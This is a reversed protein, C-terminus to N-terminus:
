KRLGTQIECSPFAARLTAIGSESIRTEQIDLIKLHKLSCLVPVVEDTAETGSIKLVTLEPLLQLSRLGEDTLMPLGSPTQGVRLETLQPWTKVIYELDSDDVATFAVSLTVVPSQSICELTKRTINQGATGFQTLTQIGGFPKLDGDHPKAFYFNFVGLTRIGGLRELISTPLPGNTSVLVIRFRTEPLESPDHLERDYSADLMLGAGRQMLDVALERHYKDKEFESMGITTPSTTNSGGTDPPHLSSAESQEPSYATKPITPPAEPRHWVVYFLVLCLACGTLQLWSIQKLRSLLKWAAPQPRAITAAGSAYRELDSQLEEASAYREAPKKQLAKLCIAELAPPVHPDFTRPEIVDEQLVKRISEAGSDAAFPAKSTLAFYLIGGIGYVDTQPSISEQDGSAQEPAMYCPTGLIQGSYTLGDSSAENRALGFDTVKTVGDETVLVNSPKLDRHLVGQSHSYGVAATIQILLRVVEEHSVDTNRVVESFTSGNVLEMSFFPDSEHEQVDYIQVIGPHNLSAVAKAEVQFRLREASSALQGSKLLKVAVHRGLPHQIAEWVIGMGGRSIERVLEYNGLWKGTNDYDVTNLSPTKCDGAIRTNDTVDNSIRGLKAEIGDLCQLHEQLQLQVTPSLQNIWSTRQLPPLAMVVRLADSVHTCDKPTRLM